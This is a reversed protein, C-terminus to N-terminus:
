NRFKLLLQVNPSAAPSLEKWEATGLEIGPGQLKEEQKSGTALFM